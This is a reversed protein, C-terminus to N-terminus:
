SHHLLLFVQTDEVETDGKHPSFADTIRVSGTWHLCAKDEM